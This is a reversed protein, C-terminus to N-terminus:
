QFPFCYSLGWWFDSDLKEWSVLYTLM